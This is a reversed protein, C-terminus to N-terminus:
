SIVATVLDGRGQYSNKAPPPMARSPRPGEQFHVKAFSKQSFFAPAYRAKKPGEGSNFTASTPLSAVLSKGPTGSRTQADNGQWSRERAPLPAPKFPSRLPVKRGNQRSTLPITASPRAGLSTTRSFTIPAKVECEPVSKVDM